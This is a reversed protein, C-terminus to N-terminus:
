DANEISEHGKVYEIGWRISDYYCIIMVLYCVFAMVISLYNFKFFTSYTAYGVTILTVIFFKSMEYGVHYCKEALITRTVCFIIYSIGTSIAAGKGGLRPVLIMNGAFNALCACLSVLVHLSSKKAFNIGVATTESITYMIPHFVLFPMIYAAERYKEGLLYALVDKGLILTIGVFYMMVTVVCFVREYFKRDDPMKEYHEISKPAWVTNFSTQIVAFLAILAMASSYVGIDEYTAYHNLALKDLSQFIQVIGMSFIYPYGYRFLEGLEKTDFKIDERIGVFFDKQSLVSIVLCGFVAIVKALSLAYLGHTRLKVLFFIACLVDIAKNLVIIKGYLSNNHNLRVLLASFRFAVNCVINVALLVMCFSDFEFVMVGANFFVIAGIVFVLTGIMSPVLTELFLRQKYRLEDFKYFFRVLAQDLGFCLVFLVLGTYMNFISAQGYESPEVLRTIIPTTFFGLLLSLITSAGVTVFSKFFSDHKM